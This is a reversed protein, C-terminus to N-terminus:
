ADGAVLAACSRCADALDPDFPGDLVVVVGAGCLALPWATGATAPDAAHWPERGEFGYRRRTHKRSALRPPEASM